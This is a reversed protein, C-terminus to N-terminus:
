ENKEGKLNFQKKVNQCLECDESFNPIERSDLCRKIDFLTPEVWSDDGKYEIIEIKFELKGDFKDNITQGNCFVFYGNNSVNFGNQRLLWQYFEMQRKYAKKWEDDLSIEKETSTAKYDVVYLVGNKDVWLDDIAGTLLLNTPKHWVEIGAFNERWRDLDPHSFPVLDLNYKKMLEHAEGKQRLLDFEKKLLKDVASNLSFAPISPPAIGLVRDLYFCRPCELFMEVKSRSLKYFDNSDKQYKGRYPM